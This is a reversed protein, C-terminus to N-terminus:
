KGDPCTSDCTKTELNLVNGTACYSCEKNTPGACIKCRSDCVLDPSNVFVNFGKYDGVPLNEISNNESYLM